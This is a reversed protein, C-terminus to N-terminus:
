SAHRLTRQNSPSAPTEYRKNAPDFGIIGEHKAGIYDHQYSNWGVNPMVGATSAVMFHPVDAGAIHSFPYGGGFRPNIDIVECVGTDTMMFDVDVTGRIGLTANLAAALGQFPSNDVTIAASTEGHRMALKRRALLGEVPGGHVPTVIDLGYEVGGLDPQLVLKDLQDSAAEIAEIGYAAIWCHAQETTLRRLGSSGSGWRDKVIVAETKELMEWVGVADSLAVTKPTPIGAAHLVHSMELKDAAARHSHADLTPVAVGRSRLQEALGESLRSLEYDNLSIFLDPQLEDITDWFTQTYEPSTYAPMQRYGDAAAAAAAGPDHDLVYVEGGHQSAQLAQQFWEVLYVRRGASSIIVRM